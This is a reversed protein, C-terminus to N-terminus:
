RLGAKGQLMQPQSTHMYKPGGRLCLEVALWSVCSEASSSHVCGTCSIQSHRQLCGRCTLLCVLQLRSAWVGGLDVMALGLRSVKQTNADWGHDHRAWSVCSLCQAPACQLHSDRSCFVGQLSWSNRAQAHGSWDYQGTSNQAQTAMLLMDLGWMQRRGNRQGERHLVVALGRGLELSSVCGHRVQGNRSSAKGGVISM